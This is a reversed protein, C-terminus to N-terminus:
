RRGGHPRGAADKLRSDTESSGGYVLRSAMGQPLRQIASHRQEDRTLPVPREVRHRIADVKGGKPLLFKEATSAATYPMPQLGQHNKSKRLAQSPFFLQTKKSLTSFPRSAHARIVPRTRM